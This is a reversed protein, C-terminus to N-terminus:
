RGKQARAEQRLKIVVRAVNDLSRKTAGSVVDPGFRQMIKDTHWRKNEANMLKLRKEGTDILEDPPAKAFFTKINADSVDSQLGSKVPWFMTQASAEAGSNWSDSYRKWVTGWEAIEKQARERAERERRERERKERERKERERQERERKERERQERERKEKNLRVQERYAKERDHERIIRELYERNSEERAKGQNENIGARRCIEEQLRALTEEMQKMQDVLRKMPHEETKKGWNDPIDTKSDRGSTNPPAREESGTTCNNLEFVWNRVIGSSQDDHRWCLLIDAVERLEPLEAVKHPDEYALKNVIRWADSSKTYAIPNRCRRGRSVAYGICTRCRTIDVTLGLVDEPDWRRSKSSKYSNTSPTNGFAM